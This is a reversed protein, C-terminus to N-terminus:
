APKLPCIGAKHYAGHELSRACFHPPPDTLRPAATQVMYQVALTVVGRTSVRSLPLRRFLANLLLLLPPGPLYSKGNEYGEHLQITM